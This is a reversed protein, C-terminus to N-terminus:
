HELVSMQAASFVSLVCFGMGSIVLLERGSFTSHAWYLPSGMFPQGLNM